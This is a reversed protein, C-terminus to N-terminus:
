KAGDGDGGIEQDIWDDMPGDFYKQALSLFLISRDALERAREVQGVVVARQSLLALEASHMYVAHGILNADTLGEIVTVLRARTM